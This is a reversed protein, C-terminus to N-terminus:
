YSGASLGTQPEAQDQGGEVTERAVTAKGHELLYKELAVGDLYSLSFWRWAGSRGRDQHCDGM